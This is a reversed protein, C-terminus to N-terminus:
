ARRIRSCSFRTGNKGFDYQYSIRAGNGFKHKYNATGGDEPRLHDKTTFYVVCTLAGLIELSM